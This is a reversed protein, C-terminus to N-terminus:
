DPMVPIWGTQSDQPHGFEKTLLDRQHLRTWLLELIALKPKLGPKYAYPSSPEGARMRRSWPMGAMRCIAHDADTVLSPLSQPALAKNRAAGIFANALNQENLYNDYGIVIRLPWAYEAILLLHVDDCVEPGWEYSLPFLEGTIRHYTRALQGDSVCFNTPKLEAISDLTALAEELHGRLTTKVEVAAIVHEIPIIQGAGGPIM